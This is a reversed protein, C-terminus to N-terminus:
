GRPAIKSDLLPTQRNGSELLEHHGQKATKLADEAIAKLEFRIENLGRPTESRTHLDYWRGVKTLLAFADPDVEAAQKDGNRQPYRLLAIARQTLKEVEAKDSSTAKQNFALIENVSPWHNDLSHHKIAALIEMESLKPLLHQAYFEVQSSKLPEHQILERGYNLAQIM